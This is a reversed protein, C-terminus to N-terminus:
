GVWTATNGCLATTMKIPVVLTESPAANYVSNTDLCGAGQQAWASAVQKFITGSIKAEIVSDIVPLTSGTYAKGIWVQGGDQGMIKVRRCRQYEPSAPGTADSEVSGARIAIIPNSNPGNIMKVGNIVHDTGHIDMGGCNELWIGEFRNGNWYRNDLRGATCNLMTVFRITNGGSKIDYIADREPNSEMLCYEITWNADLLPHSGGDGAHELWDAQGYYGPGLKAIGDRFHCRRITWDFPFTAVSTSRPRICVRSPQNPNADDVADWPLPHHFTTYDVTWRGGAATNDKTNYPRIAQERWLTFECRRIKNDFGAARIINTGGSFKLGHFILWSGSVYWSVGTITTALPTAAKIVIPNTVNGSMTINRGLTYTGPNLVIHTGPAPIPNTLATTLQADNNVTITSLATPLEGGAPPDVVVDVVTVAIRASSTNGNGDSITYTFTDDGSYSATPTYLIEGAVIDATGHSPTGADSITITDGDPDYAKSLVNITVDEDENCSVTFPIAVPSQNVNPLDFDSTGYFLDPTFYNDSETLMHNASIVADNVVRVEEILGKFKGTKPFQATNPGEGIWWEEPAANPKQQTDGVGAQTNSTSLAVGNKWLIPVAGDVWTLALWEADTTQQDDGGVVFGNISSAGINGLWPNDVTVATDSPRTYIAVGADMGAVTGTDAGQFVVGRNDGIADADLQVFLQVSCSGAGNWNTLQASMRSTTGDYDGADALISSSGVSTPTMDRGNGTYDEGTRANWAAWYGAYTADKDEESVSLGAKGIYLFRSTDSSGNLQVRVFAQLRGTTPTYSLIRHPLKVDLPSEFRIDWGATSEVVGGNGTSKLDDHTIDVYMLFNPMAATGSVYELPVRIRMRKAFNNAFTVPVPLEDITITVSCIDSYDGSTDWIQYILNDTGSYVGDPTYVIKNDIIDATGHLPASTIFLSAPDIANTGAVDNLLVDIIIPTNLFTTVTDEICTPPVVIPAPVFVSSVGLTGTLGAVTIM